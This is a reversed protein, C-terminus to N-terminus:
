LLGGCSEISLWIFRFFMIVCWKKLIIMGNIGLDGLHEKGKQNETWFKIHM